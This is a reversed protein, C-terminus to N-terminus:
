KKKLNQMKADDKMWGTKILRQDLLEEELEDIRTKYARERSVYSEQRRELDRELMGVKNLLASPDGGDGEHGVKPGVGRSSAESYRGVRRKEVLTKSM